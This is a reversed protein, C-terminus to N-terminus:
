TIEIQRHSPILQNLVLVQDEFVLQYVITISCKSDIKTKKHFLFLVPLQGLIHTGQM